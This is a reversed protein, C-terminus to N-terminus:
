YTRGSGYQNPNAPYVGRNYVPGIGAYQPPKRLATGGAGAAGSGLAAGIPGAFSGAIGGLVPLGYQLFYDMGSPGNGGGNAMALKLAMEQNFMQEQFSRNLNNQGATFENQRGQSLMNRAFDMASNLGQGAELAGRLINEGKSKIAGLSSQARLPAVQGQIDRQLGAGAESISAGLDGGQLIGRANLQKIISPIVRENLFAENSKGLNQEYTDIASQEEQALQPISDNLKKERATQIYTNALVNADDEGTDSSLLKSVIDQPLKEGLNQLQLNARDIVKFRPALSSIKDSIGFQKALSEGIQGAQDGFDFTGSGGSLNVTSGMADPSVTNMLSALEEQTADRGIQKKFLKGASAMIAALPKKLEDPSVAIRSSAEADRANKVIMRRFGEDMNQSVPVGRKQLEEIIMADSANPNKSLLNPNNYGKYFLPQFRSTDVGNLLADIDADTKLGLKEYATPM